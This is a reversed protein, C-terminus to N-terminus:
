IVCPVFVYGFEGPEGILHTFLNISTIYGTGDPNYLEVGDLMMASHALMGFVFPATDVGLAQHQDFFRFLAAQNFLGFVPM